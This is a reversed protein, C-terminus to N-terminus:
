GGEWAMQEFMYSTLNVVDFGADSCAFHLDHDVTLVQIESPDLTLIAADTLGLRIFSPSEAAIRSPILAEDAGAIFTGLESMIRSRMPESTQRLLNSAETLIHATIVLRPATALLAELSRFAREGYVGALRKHRGIYTPDTLGVILLVLLNTDITIPKPASV